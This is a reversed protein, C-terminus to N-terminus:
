SHSFLLLANGWAVILQKEINIVPHSLLLIMGHLFQKPGALQWSVVV